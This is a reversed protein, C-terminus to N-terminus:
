PGATATYMKKITKGDNNVGCVTAFLNITPSYIRLLVGFRNTHFKIENFKYSKNHNLRKRTEAYRIAMTSFM